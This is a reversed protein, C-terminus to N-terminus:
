PRRKRWDISKESILSEHENIREATFDLMAEKSFAKYNEFTFQCIM